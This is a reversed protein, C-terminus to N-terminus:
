LELAIDISRGEIEIQLKLKSQNQFWEIFTYFQKSAIWLAFNTLKFLQLQLLRSEMYTQSFAHKSGM